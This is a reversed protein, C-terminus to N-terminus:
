DPLVKLILLTVYASVALLTGQIQGTVAGMM